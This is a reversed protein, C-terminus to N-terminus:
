PNSDRGPRWEGIQGRLGVGIQARASGRRRLIINTSSAKESLAVDKSSGFIINERPSKKMHTQLELEDAVGMLIWVDLLAGQRASGFANPVGVFSRSIRRALGGSRRFLDRSFFARPVVTESIGGDVVIARIAEDSRQTCRGAVVGRNRAVSLGRGLQCATQGGRADTSRRGWFGFGFRRM